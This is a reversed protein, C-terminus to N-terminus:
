SITRKELKERHQSEGVTLQLLLSTNEKKDQNRLSTSQSFLHLHFSKGETSMTHGQTHPADCQSQSSNQSHKLTWGMGNRNSTVSSSTPGHGAQASFARQISGQTKNTPSSNLVTETHHAMNQWVHSNMNLNFGILIFHFLSKMEETCQLQRHSTAGHQATCASSMKM